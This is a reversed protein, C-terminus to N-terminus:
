NSVGPLNRSKLITRWASYLANWTQAGVIGDATFGMNAQYTCVARFTSEGFDGDVAINYASNGGVVGLQRIVSQIVSVYGKYSSSKTVKATPDVPYNEGNATKFVLTVM